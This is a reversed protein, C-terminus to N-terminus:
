IQNGKERPETSKVGRNQVCTGQKRNNTAIREGFRARHKPHQGFSTQHVGREKRTSTLKREGANIHRIMGRNSQYLKNRKIKSLNITSQILPHSQFQKALPPWKILENMM